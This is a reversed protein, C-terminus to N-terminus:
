VEAERANFKPREPMLSRSEPMIFMEAKRANDRVTETRKDDLECDPPTNRWIKGPQTIARERKKKGRMPPCRAEGLARVNGKGDKNRSCSVM